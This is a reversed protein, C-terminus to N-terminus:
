AVEAVNKEAGALVDAMAIVRVGVMVTTLIQVKEKAILEVTPSVAETANAMADVM